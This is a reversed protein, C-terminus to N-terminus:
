VQFLEKFKTTRCLELLQERGKATSYLDLVRPPAIRRLVSLPIDYYANCDQCAGGVRREVINDSNFVTHGLQLHEHLLTLMSLLPSINYSAKTKAEQIYKSITAEDRNM